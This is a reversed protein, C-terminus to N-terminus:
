TKMGSVVRESERQIMRKGPNECMESETASMYEVTRVRACAGGWNGNM